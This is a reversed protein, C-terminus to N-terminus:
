LVLWGLALLALGIGTLIGRSITPGTPPTRASLVIAAVDLVFLVAALLLLWDSLLIHGHVLDGATM